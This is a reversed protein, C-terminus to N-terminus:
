GGRLREIIVEIEDGYTLSTTWRGGLDHWTVAPGRTPLLGVVVQYRPDVILETVPDDCWVRLHQVHATAGVQWSAFTAHALPNDDDTVGPFMEQQQPTIKLGCTNNFPPKVKGLFSGGGTEKISQAVVGVPDVGYLVAADWLEPFMM